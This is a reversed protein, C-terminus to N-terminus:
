DSLSNEDAFMIWTSLFLAAIVPGLVFGSIGFLSLGGLTSFLVLYDPMHTHRGLFIPRLLNDIFGIAIAGFLLLYVAYSVQGNIFMLLAAPAWVLSAGVVPLLSLVMMIVGWLVANEIGVFYFMLGGLAGQISGILLTGKISARSVEAFKSFLARERVDGLPLVRVLSELLYEGDRLFFFLLYLMLFFMIAFSVANQGATLALTAIFQSGEIALSSINERIDSLDLGMDALYAPFTPISNQLWDLIENPDFDGSQIRLYLGAAENAVASLLFMAPVIVVSLIIFLAILASTTPSGQLSDKLFRVLPYFLVALSIAWFIPMLFPSILWVFAISVLILFGLFFGQQLNM